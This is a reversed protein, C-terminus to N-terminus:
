ARRAATASQSQNAATAHGASPSAGAVVRRQPRAASASRTAAPAPAMTGPVTRARPISPAHTPCIATCANRVGNTM